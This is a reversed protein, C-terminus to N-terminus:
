CQYCTMDVVGGEVLLIFPKVLDSTTPFKIDHVLQLNFFFFKDKLHCNWTDLRLSISELMNSKRNKKGLM